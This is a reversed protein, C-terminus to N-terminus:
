EGPALAQLKYDECRKIFRMYFRQHPFSPNSFKIEELLHQRVSEPM